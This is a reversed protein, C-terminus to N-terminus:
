KAGSASADPQMLQEAAPAMEFRAFEAADLRGDQNKDLAQFDKALEPKAQAEEASIVGDKDADLDGLASGAMLVGSFIASLGAIMIKRM